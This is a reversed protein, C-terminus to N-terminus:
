DFGRHVRARTVRQLAKVFAATRLPIGDSTHLEWIAQFADVMVARLCPLSAPLVPLRPTHTLPSGVTTCPIYCGKLEVSGGDVGAMGADEWGGAGGECGGRDLKSNVEEESWKFNQLNQVWRRSCSAPACPAWPVHTVFGAVTSSLLHHHLAAM